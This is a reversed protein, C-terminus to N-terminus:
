GSKYQRAIALLDNLVAFGTQKGGAGVGILTIDGLLDTSFTVANTTGAVGALPHSLPLKVPQVRAGDPTAQAILKWRQGQAAAEAIDDPTLGRIGTVSLDAMAPAHGFLTASLIILKSAADFGDVDATPDAEAYGLRQAEALVDDFTRGSEMQTLMYNTTGNLIGRVASVTCGALAERALRISPTGSTVTAEFMVARDASKALALLGAYDVAVPGKNALVVHKGSSLASRCLDLAPQGDRLNTPSLEVLVDIHPSTALESASIDRTLGDADPYVTLGGSTMATLLAAPDIGAPNFLSGRSRTIVGCIQLDVGYQAHLQAHKEALIQALGQGVSGFGILGLRM